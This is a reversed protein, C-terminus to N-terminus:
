KLSDLFENIVPAAAPQVELAKLAYKRANKYDGLEKYATAISSYNQPNEPDEKILILYLPIMAEYNKTYIHNNIIGNIGQVINWGEKAKTFSDDSEEGLVFLAVGKEFYCPAYDSIALCKEAIDLAEEWKGEALFVQSLQSYTSLRYPSIELAKEFSYKATEIMEKKNEAYSLSNMAAIGHNTWARTYSPRKQAIKETLSFLKETKERGEFCKEIIMAKKFLLYHTIPVEKTTAMDTYNMAIECNGAKQHAEALTINKNALLLNYNYNIIFLLLLPTFLLLFPTKYRSLHERIEFEKRLDIDSERITLFFSYGIVVAFILYISFDDVTFFNAVFFTILTAKIAHSELSKNKRLSLFLTIFVLLLAFLAPFGGWTGIEIPLNHAKDWWPIDRYIFPANPHYHRDFAYAFNEPGYGTLPKELIANWGIVFGGIRPDRLANRVDLRETLGELFSNDKAFQPTGFTTVFYISFFGLVVFFLFGLKLTRFIREKLPFFLAFYIAGIGIGLLAARTYTLLIGFIIIFLSILYISKRVKNKELFFFIFLPFVLIALYAGLITPNGFSAYPRVEQAVIVDGFLQKWQLIAFFVATVGTFFLTRWVNKWEEKSLLFFLFYSFIIILFFSLFGGGRSPDGFISFNTDISFFLSIFLTFLLILPAYFSLDKKARIKETVKRFISSSKKFLFDFLFWFLILSFIIRFPISKGFAPPSFLPPFNLLVLLLILSIGLKYIFPLKEQIINKKNM